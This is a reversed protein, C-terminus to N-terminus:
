KGTGRGACIAAAIQTPRPVFLTYPAAIEAPSFGRGEM